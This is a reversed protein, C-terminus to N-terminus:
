RTWYVCVVLVDFLNRSINKFIFLLLLLHCLLTLFLRVLFLSIGNAWDRSMFVNHRAKLRVVPLVGLYPPLWNEIYHPEKQIQKIFRGDM